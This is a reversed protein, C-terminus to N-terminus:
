NISQLWHNIHLHLLWEHLVLRSLVYRTLIELLSRAWHSNYYWPHHRSLLEALLLLIYAIRDVCIGWCQNWKAVVDWAYRIADLYSRWARKLYNNIALPISKSAMSKWPLHYSLSRKGVLNMHVGLNQRRVSFVFKLRQLNRILALSQRFLSVVLFSERLLLCNCCSAIGHDPQVKTSSCICWLGWHRYFFTLNFVGYIFVELIIFIVQIRWRLLAAARNFISGLTLVLCSYHNDLVLGLEYGLM